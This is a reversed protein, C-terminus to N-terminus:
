DLRFDMTEFVEATFGEAHRSETRNGVIERPHDELLVSELVGDIDSLHAARDLDARRKLIPLNGARDSRTKANFGVHLRPKERLQFVHPNLVRHVDDRM